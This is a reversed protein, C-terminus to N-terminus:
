KSIGSLTVDAALDSIKELDIQAYGVSQGFQLSEEVLSQWDKGLAMLRTEAAEVNGDAQYIEAVMLVYDAKYDMRLDAIDEQTPELPMLYWGYVLGTGIGLLIVLLFFGIRRRKM